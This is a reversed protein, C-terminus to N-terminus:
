MEVIPHPERRVQMGATQRQEQAIQVYPELGDALRTLGIFHTSALELKPDM